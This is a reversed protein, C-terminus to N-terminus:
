VTNERHGGKQASLLFSLLLKINAGFRSGIIKPANDRAALLRDINVFFSYRTIKTRQPM